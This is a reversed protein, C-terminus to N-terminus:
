TIEPLQIAEALHSLIRSNGPFGDKLRRLCSVAWNRGWQQTACRARNLLYDAVEEPSPQCLRPPNEAIIVRLSKHQDTLILKAGTPIAWLQFKLPTEYVRRHDNPDKKASRIPRLGHWEGGPWINLDPLNNEGFMLREVDVFLIIGQFTYRCDLPPQNHRPNAYARVVRGNRISQPCDGTCNVTWRIHRPIEGNVRTDLLRADSSASCFRIGPVVTGDTTLEYCNTTLM